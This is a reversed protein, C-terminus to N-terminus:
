GYYFLIATTLLGYLAVTLLIPKDEILVKEPSGGAGKVHILYLYRFIGYIVLPITWMLNSSHGSTFTFLSYCIITATTVITKLQSLLETTYHQLVKRHAGPSADQLHAEHWRKSIALFLSVLMICLLFWSTLEEEIVLGGGIARLVFGVAITMIDFIVLHKLKFSYAVNLAFYGILLAGFAADMYFAYGISAVFLSSAFSIAVSPKLAGSAMPRFRKTPHNRDAERDVYDNLVYVCSSVFCFMLFAMVVQGFDATTITDISFIAAAFLLLNKTWQRVRLQEIMLFVLENRRTRLVKAEIGAQLAQRSEM